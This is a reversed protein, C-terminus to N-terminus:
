QAVTHFSREYAATARAYFERDIAAFLREPEIEAAFASRTLGVQELRPASPSRRLVEYAVTPGTQQSAPIRLVDAARRLAPEDVINLFERVSADRLEALRCWVVAHQATDYQNWGVIEHSFRKCGRCVLDGYTTSCIGICPTAKM